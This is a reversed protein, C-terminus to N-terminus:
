SKGTVVRMSNLFYQLSFKLELSCFVHFYGRHQCSHVDLYRGEPVNGATAHGRASDRSLSHFQKSPWACYFREYTCCTWLALHEHGTQSSWYTNGVPDLCAGVRVCTGKVFLRYWHIIIHDSYWWPASNTVCEIQTNNGYLCGCAVVCVFFFFHSHLTGIPRWRYGRANTENECNTFNISRTLSNRTETWWRPRRSSCWM